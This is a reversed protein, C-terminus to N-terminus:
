AISVVRHASLRDAIDAPLGGRMATKDPDFYSVSEVDVNEYSRLAPDRDRAFYALKVLDICCREVDPPTSSYGATYTVVVRGAPWGISCSSGDLRLLFGADADDIEVADPALPTGNLVVSAVAVVPTRDLMLRERWRERRIIQTQTASAFSRGCFTEISASAQGILTTLFTDDTDPSQLEAKVTALTTLM